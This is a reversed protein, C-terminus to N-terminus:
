RKCNDLSIKIIKKILLKAIPYPIRYAKMTALIGPNDKEILSFVENVDDETCNNKRSESSSFDLTMDFNRLIDLINISEDLYRENVKPENYSYLSSDDIETPYELNINANNYNNPNTYKNNSNNYNNPTTYNNNYNNPTTYNNNYNNPNIYKNNYDNTNNTGSINDNLSTNSDITPINKPYPTLPALETAPNTTLPLPTPNINLNPFGMSITGLTKTVSIGDVNFQLPFKTSNPALSSDINLPVFNLDTDTNNYEEINSQKSSM